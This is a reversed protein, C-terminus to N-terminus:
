ILGKPVTKGKGSGGRKRMSELEEVASQHNKLYHLLVGGASQPDAMNLIKGITFHALKHNKKAM